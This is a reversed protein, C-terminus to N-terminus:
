GRPRWMGIFESRFQHRALRDSLSVKVRHDECNRSVSPTTGQKENIKEGTEKGKRAANRREYEESDKDLSAQMKRNLRVLKLCTRLSNTWDNGALFVMQIRMKHSAASKKGKELHWPKLHNHLKNVQTLQFSNVKLRYDWMGSLIGPVFTEEFPSRQFEVQAQIGTWVSSPPLKFAHRLFADLEESVLRSKEGAEHRIASLLDGV